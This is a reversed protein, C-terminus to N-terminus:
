KSFLMRRLLGDRRVFHHYLAAGTHLVILALLLRAGIGHPTRPRYKWFDPLPASKGLRHDPL